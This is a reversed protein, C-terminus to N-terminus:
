CCWCVNVTPCNSNVDMGREEISVFFPAFYACFRNAASIVTANELGDLDLRLFTGDGNEDLFLLVRLFTMATCNEEHMAVDM